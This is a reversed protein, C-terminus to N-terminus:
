MLLMKRGWTCNQNKLSSSKNISKRKRSVKLIMERGKYSHKNIQTMANRYDVYRNSIDSYDPRQVVTIPVLLYWRDKRQLIKWYQDIAKEKSLGEKFNALLTEFYPRRVLYATTTQCNTIRVAEPSEQHFPAYNNGALLLVDWSDNFRHLFHNVQHILHDPHIVTADDECILVHDWKNQIATEMCAIHSMTCGVAGRANWIAAFRQPHLGIKLVQSEFHKRRDTRSDLNIFLVNTIDHFSSLM